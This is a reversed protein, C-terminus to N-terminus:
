AGSLAQFLAHFAALGAEAQQPERLDYTEKRGDPFLVAVVEDKLGVFPRSVSIRALTEFSDHHQIRVEGSSGYPSGILELGAASALGSVRSFFKVDLSPILM